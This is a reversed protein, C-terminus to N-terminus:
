KKTGRVNASTTSSGVKAEFLFREVDWGDLGLTARSGGALTYVTDSCRMLPARPSSFDSASDFLVHWNGSGHDRTSIRFGTFAVGGSNEVELALATADSMDVELLTSYSTSVTVPSGTAVATAM